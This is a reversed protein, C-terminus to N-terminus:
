YNTNRCLHYPKVKDKVKKSSVFFYDNIDIASINELKNKIYDIVVIMSARIEVEYKSSVELERKTDVLLSLEKDYEIINWASMTQPIKYDACGLLHSYDVVIKEQSERLHLIDSVLLQALKYFYINEGKYKREDKFTPFYKLIIDFLEIDSTVNRIYEYFNGNMKENVINSVEVLAHYREELLPIDVNGKLMSKFEPLSIKSFDFIGKEKVHKLMVYLLADSGDKEGFETVITWKPTGWFSYDIVEFILLFNIIKSIELYFLNYPNNCLWHKLDDSDIDQIFLDLNKYNIKVHDAKDMVFKCSSLIENLM